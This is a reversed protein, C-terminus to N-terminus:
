GYKKLNLRLANLVVTVSSLAMAAGAIWPALFGAAAVPIGLSNYALAWFFNQRINQVTDRSIKVADYIRMLDGKVLVIDATELAADTGNGMAIGVDAAALAPADNIGDGAMGIKRTERIKRIIESKGEPLLASYVSEIGAKEAIASGVTQNDGTLLVTEIGLSRLRGLATVANEKLLDQVAFVAWSKKEGIVASYILTKAQKEFYEAPKLEEPISLGSDTIFKRSGIMIFEDNINARIGGGAEAQFDKVPLIDASNEKGFRLVAKALPHESMSEASAIKSLIASQSDGSFIYDTVEPRGVTLTGTKDFAITQLTAASELIEANKFLIGYSAAKGTGVLLSVPTALGLACPCAIVLVAIAKELAGAFNGPQIFVFWLIFDLVSILVVVPVFYASIRDAIKQIPAKSSLADEVTKIISALLTENGTRDARVTLVGSGNVTGGMVRSQVTKESPISEGTLMSEDVASFGELVTGDAPIKEGPKVLFIDGPKLYESPVLTWEEGKRIRANEAKLSLLTKVADSSKGKAATEMWKGAILFTILVASTEYYLPPFASHHPHLGNQIYFIDGNASGASFSSILSYGFAASTGLAVLVDMNSSRNKLAHYAGKYYSFGVWFQVPAALLFQIWPHMLIGPDPLFSLAPFHSVMSYLLPVSFLASLFFRFKLKRFDKRHEDEASKISKENHVSAKYGLDEVKALIEEQSLGPSFRIFATERALNVRAEEMGSLRSLGREIRLACNACTMGFLDLTLEEKPKAEEM